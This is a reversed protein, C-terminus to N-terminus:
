CAATAVVLENIICVYLDKSKTLMAPTSGIVRAYMQFCKKDKFMRNSCNIYEERNFIKEMKTNHRIVADYDDDTHDLCSMIQKLGKKLWCWVEGTEPTGTLLSLMNVYREARNVLDELFCDIFQDTDDLDSYTFCHFISDITEEVVIEILREFAETSILPSESRRAAAIIHIVGKMCRIVAGKCNEAICGKLPGTLEEGYLEQCVVIKDFCEREICESVEESMEPFVAEGPICIVAFLLLLTATRTSCMRTCDVSFCYLHKVSHAHRQHGNGYEQLEGWLIGQPVHDFAKEM